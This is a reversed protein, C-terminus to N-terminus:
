MNRFTVYESLLFYARIGRYVNSGIIVNFTFVRVRLRRHFSRYHFYDFQNLFSYQDNVFVYRRIGVVGHVAHQYYRTRQYVYSHYKKGFWFMCYVNLIPRTFLAIFLTANTEGVRLYVFNNTARLNGCLVLKRRSQTNLLVIPFFSAIFKWTSYQDLVPSGHPNLIGM